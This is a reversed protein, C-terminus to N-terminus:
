VHIGLDRDTRFNSSRVLIPPRSVSHPGIQAPWRKLLASRGYLALSFAYYSSRM